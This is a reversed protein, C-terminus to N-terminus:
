MYGTTLPGQVKEITKDFENLEKSQISKKFYAVKMWLYESLYLGFRDINDKNRMINAAVEIYALGRDRKGQNWYFHAFCRCVIAYDEM